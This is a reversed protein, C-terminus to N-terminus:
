KETRNIDLFVSNLVTFGGKNKSYQLPCVVIAYDPKVDWEVCQLENQTCFFM